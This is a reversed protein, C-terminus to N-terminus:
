GCGASYGGLYRFDIKVWGDRCREAFWDLDRSMGSYYSGISGLSVGCMIGALLVIGMIGCATTIAGGMFQMFVSWNYSVNNAKCKNISSSFGWWHYSTFTYEQCWARGEVSGNIIMNAKDLITDQKDIEKQMIPSNVISEIAQNSGDKVELPIKNYSKLATTISSIQEKSLGLSKIKSSNLFLNGNLDKDLIKDIQNIQEQTLNLIPKIKPSTNGLTKDLESQILKAKEEKDNISNLRKDLEKAKDELEMLNFDYITSDMGSKGKKIKEIDVKSGTLTLSTINPESKLKKLSELESKTYKKIIAKNSDDLKNESKITLLTPIFAQFQRNYNYLFKGSKESENQVTFTQTKDGITIQASLSKILIKNLNTIDSNLNNKLAELKIPKNYNITALVETKVKNDASVNLSNYFSIITAFILISSVLARIANMLTASKLM